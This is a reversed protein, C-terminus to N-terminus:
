YSDVHDVSLSEADCVTTKAPRSEPIQPSITKFMADLYLSGTSIASQAYNQNSTEKLSSSDKTIDESALPLSSVPVNLM